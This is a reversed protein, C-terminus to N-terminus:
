DNHMNLTAKGAHHGRLSLVTGEIEKTEWGDLRVSLMQENYDCCSFHEATCIMAGHM